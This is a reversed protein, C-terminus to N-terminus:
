NLNIAWDLDAASGNVSTRVRIGNTIEEVHCRISTTATSNSLITLGTPPGNSTPFTNAPWTVSTDGPGNDVVSFTAPVVSSRPAWARTVAPDGATIKVEIGCSHATRALAAIQKVIQDWAQATPMEGEVPQFEPDNELDDGGLDDTSPRRPVISVGDGDWTNFTPASM